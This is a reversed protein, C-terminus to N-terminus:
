NLCDTEIFKMIEDFDPYITDGNKDRAHQTYKQM